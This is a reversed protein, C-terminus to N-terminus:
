IWNESWCHFGWLIHSWGTIFESRSSHHRRLLSCQHGKSGRYGHYSIATAVSTRMCYLIASGRRLYFRNAKHLLSDEHNHHYIGGVVSVVNPAVGILLSGIGLTVTSALTMSIDKVYADLTLYRMLAESSLPLVITLMFLQVGNGLAWLFNVQLIVETLFARLECIHITCM